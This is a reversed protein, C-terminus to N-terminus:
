AKEAEIKEAEAELEAEELMARDADNLAERAL